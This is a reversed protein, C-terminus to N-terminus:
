KPQNALLACHIRGTAHSSRMVVPDTALRKVRDRWVAPHASLARGSAEPSQSKKHAVPLQKVPRRRLSLINYYMNAYHTGTDHSNFTECYLETAVTILQM